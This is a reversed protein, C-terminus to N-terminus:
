KDNSKFQLSSNYKFYQFKFLRWEYLVSIRFNYTKVFVLSIALKHLSFKWHANLKFSIINLKMLPNIHWMIIM